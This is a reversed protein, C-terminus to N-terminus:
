AGDGVFKNTLYVGNSLGMLILFGQPIEPITYTNLVTMTVFAATILTFFLMQVRTVDVEGRGPGAVVLDAWSPNRVTRCTLVSSWPGFGNANGASVRFDYATGPALPSISMTTAHSIPRPVWPEVSDHRRFQVIYGATAPAVPSWAISLLSVGPSLDVRLGAVQDPAAAPIPPQVAATTFPGAQIAPGLGGANEAQLQFVYTAGSSLGIVTHHPL